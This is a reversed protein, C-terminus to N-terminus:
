GQAIIGFAGTGQLVRETIYEGLSSFTTEYATTELLLPHCFHM